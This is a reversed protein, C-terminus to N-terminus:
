LVAELLARVKEADEDFNVVEAFRAVSAESVSQHFDDDDRLRRMWAVVEDKGHRSLDLSNVGDLWLPGALKDVYYDAYGIVPKGTAFLNHIVHGYGDSWWKSHWAIRTRRMAAAVDPTSGLNGCAFEDAPHSGYAGYVKWDFEPLERAYDLFEAYFGKNEAFCQIFSAVSRPEEPPWVYRFDTLRFEQRYIVHPKVPEYEMNSSVLGFDALGWNSYQAQNGIQVGFKAGTDRALQHLGTDNDPLSSIIIDWSQARAQDLEVGKRIRGPHTTETISWYGDQDVADPWVGVLYQKAVGDGHHQREFNWVGQDFWQMGIPFFLDWGYRDEFLLALSEALDAHHYDALIRMGFRGM